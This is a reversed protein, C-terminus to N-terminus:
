KIFKTNKFKCIAHQNLEWPCSYTKSYPIIEDYGHILAHKSWFDLAEYSAEKDWPEPTTLRGKYCTMVKYLDAIRLLFVTIFKTNEPERHLVIRSHGFRGERIAYYIIDNDDTKVCTSQGIDSPFEFEKVIKLQNIDIIQEYVMPMHPEVGDHIHTSSVRPIFKIGHKNTYIRRIAEAVERDDKKKTIFAVEDSPKVVEQLSNLIFKYDKGDMDSIIYGYGERINIMKIKGLLDDLEDKM